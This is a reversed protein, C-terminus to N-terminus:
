SITFYASNIIEKHDDIIWEIWKNNEFYYIQFINDWYRMKVGHIKWYLECFDDYSKIILNHGYDESCFEDMYNIIFMIIEDDLNDKECFDHSIFINNNREDDNPIAYQIYYPIM